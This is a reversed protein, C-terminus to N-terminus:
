LIWLSFYSIFVRYFFMVIFLFIFNFFGFVFGKMASLKLVRKFSIILYVFVILLMGYVPYQGVDYRIIRFFTIMFTLLLLIFCFNHINIIFHKGFQPMKKKGTLYSFVALLPILIIIGIKSYHVVKTDYLIKVEEFSMGLALMKSRVLDMVQIGWEYREVFFWKSPVLVIDFDGLLIFLFVSSLIYLQFPKMYKKRRGEIYEQSLFGPGFILIWVSRFLKNDLNTLANFGEGIIKSLSFDSDQVVKEGCSSCYRRSLISRCSLCEKIEVNMIKCSLLLILCDFIRVKDLIFQLVLFFCNVFIHM